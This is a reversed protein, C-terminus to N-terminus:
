WPLVLGLAYVIWGCELATDPALRRVAFHVILIVQFIFAWIVFVPNQLGSLSM